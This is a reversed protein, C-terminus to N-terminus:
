KGLYIPHGGLERLGVDFSVRTRLSPKEFLMTITNGLLPSGTAEGNRYAEGRELIRLIQTESLDNISLLHNVM